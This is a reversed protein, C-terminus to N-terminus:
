GLFPSTKFINQVLNIMLAVITDFFGLGSLTSTL